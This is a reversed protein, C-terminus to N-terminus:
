SLRVDNVVVFGQGSSGSVDLYVPDMKDYIAKGDDSRVNGNINYFRLKYDLESISLGRDLDRGNVLTGAPGYAFYSMRLDMRDIQSSSGNIHFYVPDMLDYGLSGYQDAFKVASDSPFLTLAKNFDVDMADVKSGPFHIGFRTLRIDNQEINSSGNNFHYYVVDGADFQGDIIGVDWFYLNPDSAFDNLVRGIDGDSYLVKSGFAGADIAVLPFVQNQIIVNPQITAAASREDGRHVQGEDVVARNYKNELHESFAKIGPSIFSAAYTGQVLIAALVLSFLIYKRTDL